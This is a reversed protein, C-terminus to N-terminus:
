PYRKKRWKTAIIIISPPIEHLIDPSCIKQGAKPVFFIQKRRDSDVVIPFDEKNFNFYNIFMAAKGSGGWIVIPQKKFLLQKKVQEMNKKVAISNKIFSNAQNVKEVKCDAYNIAVLGALVENNFITQIRVIRCGSVTFLAVFSESTFHSNHEYYFDSIRNDQIANDVCPVEIYLKTPINNKECHYVLTQLFESPMSLHELMHRSIILNPKLRKLDDSLDFYDKYFFLNSIESDIGSTNNPDFGYFKSDPRKKALSHLFEGNGCGIEVVVSNESLTSILFEKTQNICEGWCLSNNFMLNDNNKYNINEYIFETNFIHGCNICQVFNLPLIKSNLAEEETKPWSLTQIPQESTFFLSSLRHGCVICPKFFLKDKM